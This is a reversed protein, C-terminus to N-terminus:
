LHEAPSIHAPLDRHTLVFILTSVHFAKGKIWSTPKKWSFVDKLPWAFPALQSVAKFNLQYGACFSRLTHDEQLPLLASDPVTHWLHCFFCWPWVKYSRWFGAEVWRLSSTHCDSLLHHWESGECGSPVCAPPSKSNNYSQLFMQLISMIGGSFDMLVGGISWGETSQRRYNMIAQFGTLFGTLRAPLLWFCNWPYLFDLLYMKSFLDRPLTCSIKRNKWVGVCVWVFVSPCNYSYEQLKKLKLLQLHNLCVEGVEDKIWRSAFMLTHQINIAQTHARAGSTHGYRHCTNSWLLLWNLTPATTSSTWGPSRNPQQLFWLSWLLRGVLWCCPCPQGPSRRTEERVGLPFVPFRMLAGGVFICLM